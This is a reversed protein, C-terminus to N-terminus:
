YYEIHLGLEAPIWNTIHDVLTLGGDSSRYTNFIYATIILEIGTIVAAAWKVSNGSFFIAIAISGAIPLFIALTLIGNFEAVSM